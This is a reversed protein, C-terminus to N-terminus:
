HFSQLSTMFAFLRATPSFKQGLQYSKSKKDMETIWRFSTIVHVRKQLFRRDILETKLYYSILWFFFFFM